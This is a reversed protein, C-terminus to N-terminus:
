YLAIDSQTTLDNTIQQKIDSNNVDIFVNDNETIEVLSADIDQLKFSLSHENNKIEIGMEESLVEPFLVDIENNTNTFISEGDKFSSILTNDINTWKGDQMFHLPESSFLATYSGDKKKYVKTFEDRKEEVEYLIETSFDKDDVLTTVNERPMNKMAMFETYAKAILEMPLIQLVLLAVLFISIIKCTTKTKKKM